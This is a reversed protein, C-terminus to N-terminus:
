LLASNDPGLMNQRAVADCGILHKFVNTTQAWDVFVSTQM